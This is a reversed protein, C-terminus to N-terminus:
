LKKEVAIDNTLQALKKKTENQKEQLQTIQKNLSELGGTSMNLNIDLTPPISSLNFPEIIKPICSYLYQYIIYIYIIILIIIIIDKLYIM